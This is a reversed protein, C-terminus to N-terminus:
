HLHQPFLSVLVQSGKEQQLGRGCSGQLAQPLSHWLRPVACRAECYGEDPDVCISVDSVVHLMVHCM